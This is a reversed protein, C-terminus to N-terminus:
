DTLSYGFGRGEQALAVQGVVASPSSGAAHATGMSARAKKALPARVICALWADIVPTVDPTAALQTVFRTAAHPDFACLETAVAECVTANRFAGNRALGLLLEVKNPAHRLHLPAWALGDLGGLSDAALPDATSGPPPPTKPPAIEVDFEVVDGGGKGCCAFM